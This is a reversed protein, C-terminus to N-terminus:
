EYCDGYPRCISRALVHVLYVCRCKGDHRTKARSKRIIQKYDHILSVMDSSDTSYEASFKKGDEQKYVVIEFSKDPTKGLIRATPTPM